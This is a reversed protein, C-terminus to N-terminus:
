ATMATLLPKVGFIQIARKLDYALGHLSMETTVNPLRKMLFHTAGMWAKLTGFVHEVTQRRLRMANPTRDLWDQMTELIAEHEWRSIRRYDGTTCRDKMPCRPCASPWYRTLIQGHEVSTHRRVARQGAPCRYADNDAIYRLDRKDFFGKAKNGSTQPKPVPTTIDANECDVIAEGKFYGRDAVVTVSQTGLADRTQKAMNYLQDRDNGVITVEHAVILHHKADVTTQVNYGVVGTGRGSTAMSRAEPDTLSIQGDPADRMQEGIENLHQLQAKVTELKEKLYDVRAAPVLAPDRDARDLETLYRVIRRELQEICAKLKRDCRIIPHCLSM